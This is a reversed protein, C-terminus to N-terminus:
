GFYASSILGGFIGLFLGFIPTVGPIYFFKVTFKPIFFKKDTMM